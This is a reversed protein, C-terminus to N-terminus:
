IDKFLSNFVYTGINEKLFNIEKAVKVKFDEVTSNFDVNDIRTIKFDKLLM